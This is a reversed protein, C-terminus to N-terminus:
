RETVFLLWFLRCRRQAVKPSLGHYTDPDDLGIALAFSIAERLYYVAKRPQHRNGYYVYLFFSTMITAEGPDSMFDWKRRAELAQDIWFEASYCTTTHDDQRLGPDSWITSQDSLGGSSSTGIINLQVTAAGALASLLGYQDWSPEQFDGQTEECPLTENDLVPFVPYLRDFYLTVYPLFATTPIKGGTQPSQGINDDLSYVDSRM